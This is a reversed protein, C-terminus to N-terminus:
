NVCVSVSICLCVRLCVFLVIGSSYVCKFLFVYSDPILPLFLVLCSCSIYLICSLVPFLVFCLRSIYLFVYFCLSVCFMVFLCVRLRVCLVFVCRADHAVGVNVGALITTTGSLWVEGIVPAGPAGPRVPGHFDSAAPAPHSRKLARTRESRM